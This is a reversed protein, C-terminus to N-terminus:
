ILGLADEIRNLEPGTTERGAIAGNDSAALGAGVYPSGFAVTGVMPPVGLVDEIVLVEDPLVDPHLLVGQNNAVGLSGVVDEGAISCVAVPIGFVDSIIEVGDEPLAPSAIAGNENCLLLNGATNVGGEMVVVDGFSTLIDIDSETAIDAVALGKSNGTVLAGVLTSGGVTLPHRELGICEDIRNLADANLEHPHFVVKGCVALYIGVQDSGLVDSTTIPM